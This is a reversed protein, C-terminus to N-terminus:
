GQPVIPLSVPDGMLPSTRQVDGNRAFFRHLFCSRVRIRETKSTVEYGLAALLEEGAEVLSQEDEIFVIREHGTPISEDGAIADAPKEAVAPLYIMFVSGQGSSSEATIHGHM